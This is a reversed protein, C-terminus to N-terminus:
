SAGGLDASIEGSFHARVVHELKFLHWGSDANVWATEVEGNFFASAYKEDVGRLRIPESDFTTWITVDM